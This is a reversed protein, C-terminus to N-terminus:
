RASPALTIVIVIPVLPPPRGVQPYEVPQVETSGIIQKVVYGEPLDVVSVDYRIGIPLSAVYSGDTGQRAVVRIRGNMGKFVISAKSDRPLGNGSEALITAALQSFRTTSVIELSSLGQRGVDVDGGVVFLSSIGPKPELGVAYHGPPVAAFEFSGDANVPASFREVPGVERCCLTVRAAATTTGTVADLIRGKVSVLGPDSSPQRKAIRVEVSVPEKGSFKLTEKLLDTGGAMMSKISYEEPFSRLYFRFNGPELIRSFTGDAAIPLFTSALINPNDATTVIADVFATADPLTTGDEAVIRGSLLSLPIQFDLGSVPQDVVVNRPEARTGSFSATVTYTGARVDPFEFKGDPGVFLMGPPNITPLGYASPTVPAASKIEVIASSAPTDGTATVRGSLLFGPPPRPVTFDIARLNTTPTTVITRAALADSVGPYLAPSEAFGAAIYYTGPMLNPLVYAGTNDSIASRAATGVVYTFSTSAATTGTPPAVRSVVIINGSFASVTTPQLPLPGGSPLAPVAAVRIGAAPTADPFRLTGSIIGTGQIVTQFTPARTAPVFSSFDIAEVLSRSSVEVVRARSIDATGPYYTPAAVSGSAIYYRGPAVELGYRGDADTQAQSELPAATNAADAADRVAIAYVRVGAAPTGNSNRVVGTVTGAQPAAQLLLVALLLSNM